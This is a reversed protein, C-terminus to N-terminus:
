KQKGMEGNITADFRNLSFRKKCYKSASCMAEVLANRTSSKNWINERNGFVLINANKGSFQVIENSLTFQHGNVVQNSLFLFYTAGNPIYTDGTKTRM